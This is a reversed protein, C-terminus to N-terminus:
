THVHIHVSVITEARINQSPKLTYKYMSIPFNAKISLIFMWLTSDLAYPIWKAKFLTCWPPIILGCVLPKETRYITLLYVNCIFLDLIGPSYM